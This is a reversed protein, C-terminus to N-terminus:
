WGRRDYRDPGDRWGRHDDWRDSRRDLRGYDDGRRPETWAPPPVPRPRPAQVVVVDRHGPGRAPPRHAARRDDDDDDAAAAGIIAGLFGGFIAANRGGLAHGVVAGTGAGLVAGGLEDLALASPVSAALGTALLISAFLKRKM